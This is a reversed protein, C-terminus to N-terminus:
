KGAKTFADTILRKQYSYQGQTLKLKKMLAQNNLIPANQYGTLHEMIQKQVPALDHYVLDTLVDHEEEEFGSPTPGSELLEKRAAENQFRNVYKASWGLHDSLEDVTPPRGLQDALTSEAVSYTHYKLRKNEPLRAISQHTYSLRSLKKLYNAVHTALAAGRDPSYRELAMITLRRGEAELIPRALSGSWKNVEQQILPNLQALVASLNSPTPSRKWAQWLALDKNTREQAIAQTFKSLKTLTNSM